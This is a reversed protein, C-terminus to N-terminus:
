LFFPCNSFRNKRLFTLEFTRLVPLKLSFDKFKDEKVDKLVLLSRANDPIHREVVFFFVVPLFLSFNESYKRFYQTEAGFGLSKM